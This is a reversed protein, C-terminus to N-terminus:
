RGRAGWRVTEALFDRWFRDMSLTHPDHFVWGAERSISASCGDCASDSIKFDRVVWLRPVGDLEGKEREAGDTTGHSLLRRGHHGAEGRQLANRGGVGACCLGQVTRSYRMLPSWSFDVAM